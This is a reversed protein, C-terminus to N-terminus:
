HSKLSQFVSFRLMSRGKLNTSDVEGSFTHIGNNGDEGAAM